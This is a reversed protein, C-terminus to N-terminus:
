KHYPGGLCDCGPVKGCIACQENLRAVLARLREARVPLGYNEELERALTRLEAMIEAAGTM